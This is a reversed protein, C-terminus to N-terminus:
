VLFTQTGPRRPRWASQKGAVRKWALLSRRSWMASRYASNDPRDRGGKSSSGGRGKRNLQNRPLNKKSRYWNTAANSPRGNSNRKSGNARARRRAPGLADRRIRSAEEGDHLLHDRDQPRDGHHGSGTGTQEEDPSSLRGVPKPRSASFLGGHSIAAGARNHVKRM